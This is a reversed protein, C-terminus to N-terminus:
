LWNELVVHVARVLAEKAHILHFRLFGQLELMGALNTPFVSRM